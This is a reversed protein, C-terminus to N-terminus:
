VPSHPCLFAPTRRPGRNPCPVVPVAAATLTRSRCRSLGFECGLSEHRIMKLQDNQAIERLPHTLLHNLRSTSSPTHQSCDQVKFDFTRRWRQCIALNITRLKLIWRLRLSNTGSIKTTLFPGYSCYSPQTRSQARFRNFM